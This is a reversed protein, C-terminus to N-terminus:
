IILSVSSSPISWASYGSSSWLISSHNVSCLVWPLNKTSCQNQIKFCCFCSWSIFWDASQLPLILQQIHSEFSDYYWTVINHIFSEWQGTKVFTLVFELRTLNKVKRDNRLRKQTRVENQMPIATLPNISRRFAFSNLSSGSNLADRPQYWFHFRRWETLRRVLVVSAWRRGSSKSCCVTLNWRNTIM